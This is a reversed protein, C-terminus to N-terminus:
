LCSQVRVGWVGTAGGGHFGIGAEGRQRAQGGTLSQAQACGVHHTTTLEYVILSKNAASQIGKRSATSVILCSLGSHLRAGCAQTGAVARARARTCGSRGQSMTLGPHLQAGHTASPAFVGREQQKGLGGLWGISIGQFICMSAKIDCRAGL